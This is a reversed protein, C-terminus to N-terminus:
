VVEREAIQPGQSTPNGSADKLDWRRVETVHNDKLTVWQNNLADIKCGGAVVDRVLQNQEFDSLDGYAYLPSGGGTDAEITVADDNAAVDAVGYTGNGIEYVGTTTRANAETGDKKLLRYGVTALSDYGEGFVFTIVPVTFAM